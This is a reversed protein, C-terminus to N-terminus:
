KSVSASHEVGLFSVAVVELLCDIVIKGDVRVAGM